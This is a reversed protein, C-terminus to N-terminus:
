KMENVTGRSIMIITRVFLPGWTKSFESMYHLTIPQIQVDGGDGRAGLQVSEAKCTANRYQAQCNASLIILFITKFLIKKGVFHVEISHLSPVQFCVEM